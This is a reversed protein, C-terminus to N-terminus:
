LESYMKIGFKKQTEEIKATDGREALVRLYRRVAREINPHKHGFVYQMKEIGDNAYEMRTEESMPLCLQYIMDARIYDPSEPGLEESVIKVGKLIHNSAESYRGQILLLGGLDCLTYALQVRVESGLTRLIELSKKLEREADREKGQDALAQAYFRIAVALLEKHANDGYSSLESMSKTLRAIAEKPRKEAILVAAMAIETSHVAFSKEPVECAVLLARELLSKAQTFEYEGYAM